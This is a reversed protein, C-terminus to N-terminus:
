LELFKSNIYIHVIGELIGAFTLLKLYGLKNESLLAVIPLIMFKISSISWLNSISFKDWSYSSPRLSARCMFDELILSSIVLSPSSVRSTDM